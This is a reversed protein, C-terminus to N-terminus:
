KRFPNNVKWKGDERIIQHEVPMQEGNQFVLDAKVSAASDNTTKTTVVDLQKFGGNEKCFVEVIKLGERLLAPSRRLNQSFSEVAADINGECANKLYSRMPAGPKDDDPLYEKMQESNCGCVILFLIFLIPKLNNKLSKM